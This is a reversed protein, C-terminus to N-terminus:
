QESPPPETVPRVSGPDYDDHRFDKAAPETLADLNGAPDSREPDVDVDRSKEDAVDVQNLHTNEPEYTLPGEPEWAGWGPRALHDQPERASRTIDDREIASDALPDPDVDSRRM